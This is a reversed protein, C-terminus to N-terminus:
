VRIPASASHLRPLFSAAEAGVSPRAPFKSHSHFRTPMASLVQTMRLRPRWCVAHLPSPLWSCACEHSAGDKPRPDRVSEDRTMQVNALPSSTTAGSSSAVHSGLALGAARGDADTRRDAPSPPLFFSPSKIGFVTIICSPCALFGVPAIRDPTLRSPSVNAPSDDGCAAPLSEAPAAADTMPPIKGPWVALLFHTHRDASSGVSAVSRPSKRSRATSRGFFYLYAEPGGEEGGERLRGRRTPPHLTGVKRGGDCCCCHFHFTSRILIGGSSRREHMAAPRMRM